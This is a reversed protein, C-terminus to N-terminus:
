LSIPTVQIHVQGQEFTLDVGATVRHQVRVMVTDDFGVEGVTGEVLHQTTLAMKGSGSVGVFKGESWSTEEGLAIDVKVDGERIDQGSNIVVLTVLCWVRVIDQEDSTFASVVTGWTVWGGFDVTVDPLAVLQQNNHDIDLHRAPTLYQTHHDSSLGTLNGHELSTTLSSKGCVLPDDREDTIESSTIEVAGNAVEVQALSVEYTSSDRTLAPPTTSSTGELLELEAVRNSYDVRLVVRHIVTNGSNNNPIVLTNIADQEIVLKGNVWAAGMRVQVELDTPTVPEVLLEDLFNSIYGETVIAGFADEWEQANYTRDSAVSDFFLGKIM